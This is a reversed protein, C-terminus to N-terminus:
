KEGRDSQYTYKKPIDNVIYGDANVRPLCTRALESTSGVLLMNNYLWTGFPSKKGGCFPIAGDNCYHEFRHVAQEYLAAGRGRRM